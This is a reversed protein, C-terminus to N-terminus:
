MWYREAVIRGALGGVLAILLVAIFFIYYAM